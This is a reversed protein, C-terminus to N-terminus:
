NLTPYEKAMKAGFARIAEASEIDLTASKMGLNAKTTEDLVSQRRGVIIVVNGLKHFADALARGIGSGGGTVLITNGTM